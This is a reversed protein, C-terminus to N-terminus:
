HRNILVYLHPRPAIRNIQVPPCLSRSFLVLNTSQQRTSVFSPQDVVRVKEFLIRQNASKAYAGRKKYITFGLLQPQASRTPLSIEQLFRLRQSRGVLVALVAIQEQSSDLVAEYAKSKSNNTTLVRGKELPQYYM